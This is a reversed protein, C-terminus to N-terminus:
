FLLIKPNKNQLKLIDYIIKGEYMGNVENEISLSEIIFTEPKTEHIPPIEPM